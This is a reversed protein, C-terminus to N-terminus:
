QSSVLGPRSRRFRQTSLSTALPRYRRLTSLLRASAASRSDQYVCGPIPLSITYRGHVKPLAASYIRPDRRLGMIPMRSRATWIRLMSRGHCSCQMTTPQFSSSAELAGCTHSAAKTPLLMYSTEDSVTCTGITFVSAQFSSPPLERHAPLPVQPWQRRITALLHATETSCSYRYIQVM